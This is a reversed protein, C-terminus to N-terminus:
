ENFGLDQESTICSSHNYNGKQLLRHWYGSSRSGYTFEGKPVSQRVHERSYLIDSFWFIKKNFTLNKFGSGQQRLFKYNSPCRSSSLYFKVCTMRLLQITAIFCNVNKQFYGLVTTAKYKAKTYNRFYWQERWPILM